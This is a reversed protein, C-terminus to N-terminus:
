PRTVKRLKTVKTDGPFSRTNRIGNPDKSGGHVTIWEEGTRENRFRGQFTWTGPHGTIRISDGKAIRDEVEVVPTPRHRPTLPARTARAM